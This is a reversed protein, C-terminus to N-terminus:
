KSARTRRQRPFLSGMQRQYRQRMYQRRHAKFEPTKTYHKQQCKVSCYEQHRFRAYLWRDCQLCHRLRNLYGIQVLKLLMQLAEGADMRVHKEHRGSSWRWWAAWECPARGRGGMVVEARPTFRYKSLERRLFARQKEIEWHIEYKKPDTRKWELAAIMPEEPPIPSTLRELELMRELITVIRKGNPKKARNLFDELDEFLSGTPLLSDTIHVKELRKRGAEDRGESM